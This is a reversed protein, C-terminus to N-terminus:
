PKTRVASVDRVEWRIEGLSRHHWRLLTILFPLTRPRGNDEYDLVYREVITEQLSGSTWETVLVDHDAFRVTGRTGAAVLISLPPTQFFSERDRKAERSQDYHRDLATGPAQRSEQTLHLQHAESLRGTRVLELWEDAHQRAEAYVWSRRVTYQVIAWSGCILALALATLAAKRGLLRPQEAAIRRLALLALILALVPLSWLLPNQLDIFAAVSLLGVLLATVALWSVGRYRALDDSPADSFQPTAPSQHSM